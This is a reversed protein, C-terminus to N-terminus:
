TLFQFKSVRHYDPFVLFFVQEGRAQTIYEIASCKQETMSYM